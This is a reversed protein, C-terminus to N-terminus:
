ATAGVLSALGASKTGCTCRSSAAHLIADGCLLCAGLALNCWWPSPCSCVTHAPRSPSTLSQQQQAILARHAKAFHLHMLCNSLVTDGNGLLEQHLCHCTCWPFMTILSQCSAHCYQHARAMTDILMSFLVSSNRRCRVMCVDHTISARLHHSQLPRRCSTGLLCMTGRCSLPAKYGRRSRGSWGLLTQRLPRRNRWWHM